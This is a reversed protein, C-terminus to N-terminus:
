ANKEGDNLMGLAGIAHQTIAGCNSCGVNVVPISPGGISMVNPDFVDQVPINAFGRLVTFQEHGCRHCPLLAKKDNLKQIIVKEDFKM